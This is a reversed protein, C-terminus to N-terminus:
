IPPSALDGALLVTAAARRDVLTPEGREGADPRMVVARGRVRINKAAITDAQGALGCSVCKFRSQSPRNARCTHRCEPCEQSTYAPDVFVMPVGALAGATLGSSKRMDRYALHHLDYRRFSRSRWAVASLVDAAANAQRLTAELAIAQEASPQLQVQAILIQPM